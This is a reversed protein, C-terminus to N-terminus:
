REKREVVKVLQFKKRASFPRCPEILVKDGARTTDGEDHFMLNTRQKVYKHVFPHKILREVYATRTRPGSASKVVCMLPRSKKDNLNDNLNDNSNDSPNQAGVAGGGAQEVNSSM